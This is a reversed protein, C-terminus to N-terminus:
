RYVLNMACAYMTEGDSAASPVGRPYNPANVFTWDRMNNSYYYGGGTFLYYDDQHLVVVPEGMRGVRQSGVTVNIPNCFTLPKDKIRVSFTKSKDSTHSICSSLTCTIM